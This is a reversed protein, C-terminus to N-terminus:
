RNLIAGEPVRYWDMQRTMYMVAALAALLGFSGLLLSYDELRLLTYLFGYLGSLTSSVVATTSNRQFVGHTYGGIVGVIALSAVFYAAGFAIHESLALLLLYFLVIGAGVMLYQVPHLKKGSRSEVLFFVLFAFFVYLVAYKVARTASSYHDVPIMLEVGFTGSRRHCDEGESNQSCEEGAWQQPFDRNIDLVKWRATFGKGGVERAEPLFAGYFKPSPWASELSVTTTKGVPVFALTKSGKLKLQFSFHAPKGDVFAGAPLRASLGSRLDHAAGVGADLPLKRGEWQIEVGDKV